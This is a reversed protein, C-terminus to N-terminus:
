LPPFLWVSTHAHLCLIGVSPSQSASHKLHVLLQLIKEHTIDEPLAEESSSYEQFHEGERQNIISSPVSYPQWFATKDVVWLGATGCLPPECDMISWRKKQMQAMRSFILSCLSSSVHTDNAVPTGFKVIGGRDKIKRRQAEREKEDDKRLHLSPDNKTRPSSSESIKASLMDGLNLTYPLGGLYYALMLSEIFM